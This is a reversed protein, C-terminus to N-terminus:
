LDGPIKQVPDALDVISLLCCFKQEPIDLRLDQLTLPPRKRERVTRDVTKTLPRLHSRDIASATKGSAELTGVQRRGQRAMGIQVVGDERLTKTPNITPLGIAERSRGAAGM